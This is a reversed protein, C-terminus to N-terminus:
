IEKPKLQLGHPLQVCIIDRDQTKQGQSGQFLFLKCLLKFIYALKLTYM